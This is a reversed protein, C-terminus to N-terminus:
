VQTNDNTNVLASLPQCAAATGASNILAVLKIGEKKLLSYLDDIHKQVTVDLIVPRLGPLGVQQLEELDKVKRVCAFVTFGDRALNEM